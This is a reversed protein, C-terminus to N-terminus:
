LVQRGCVVQMQRGKWGRPHAYTPDDIVAVLERSSAEFRVRVTASRGMITQKNPMNQTNIFEITAQPAGMSVIRCGADPHNNEFEIEVTQTFSEAM